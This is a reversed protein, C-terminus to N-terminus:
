MRLPRIGGAAASGPAIGDTGNQNGGTKERRLWLFIASSIAIGILLANVPESALEFEFKL